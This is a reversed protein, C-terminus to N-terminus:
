VIGALSAGPHDGAILSRAAEGGVAAGIALFTLAILRQARREAAESAARRRGFRWVVVTAAMAEAVSDAGFGVLAISGAALGAVVGVGAELLHWGLSLWALLRARAVLRARPVAPSALPLDVADSPLAVSPPYPEGTASASSNWRMTSDSGGSQVASSSSRRM